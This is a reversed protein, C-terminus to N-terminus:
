SRNLAHKKGCFHPFPLKLGLNELYGLKQFSLHNLLTITNNTTGHHHRHCFSLIYLITTFPPVRRPKQVIAPFLKVGDPNQRVKGEKKHNESTKHM